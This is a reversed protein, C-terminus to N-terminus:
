RHIEMELCLRHELVVAFTNVEVGLMKKFKIM